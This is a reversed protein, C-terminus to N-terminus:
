KIYEKLEKEIRRTEDRNKELKKVEWSKRGKALAIEVKIRGGKNYWRVPVVTLNGGQSLKGEIRLIEKKNLLLNRSRDPDYNEVKAFKYLPIHANLLTPKSGVFKVFAGEFKIGVQRVAKVEYGYLAIGAEFKDLLEYERM